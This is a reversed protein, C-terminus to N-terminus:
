TSITITGNALDIVFTPSTAHNQLTGATLTGVNANISSLQAVQLKGATISGALMDNAIISDALFLAANSSSISSINAMAGLTLSGDSAVTANVTGGQNNSMSIGTIASLSASGNSATIATGNFSIGTLVSLDVSGNSGSVVNGNIKVEDVAAISIKRVGTSPTSPTVTTGNVDVDTIATVSATGSSVSAASGNVNVGTLGTLAGTGSTVSVASGNFTLGTLAGIDVAGGSVTRAIGNLSVGTIAGIDAVGSADVIDVGGNVKVSQVPAASSAGTADVYGTSSNDYAVLSEASPAASAGAAANPRWASVNNSYDVTRLWYRYNTGNALGEDLIDQKSGAVGAISFTPVVNNAPIGTTTKRLIQVGAFDLDSPNTWNLKIRKHGATIAPTAVAPATTDGALTRNGSYTRVSRVGIISIAQVSARYVQGVQLGGFVLSNLGSGVKQSFLPLYTSGGVLKELFVEYEGTFADSAKTWGVTVSSLLAGDNNLDAAESTTVNTPASTFRPNPLSTNPAVDIGFTNGFNWDYISNEEEVAELNIGGDGQMAWGSVRFKKNTFIANEGGTGDRDITLTFTDNVAIKFAKLNCPLQISLQQRNREVLLKAIRQARKNDKVFNFAVDAWLKEGDATEYTSDTYPTFDVLNYGNAPDMFTGRMANIRNKQGSETQIVVSGALFSADVVHNRSAPIPAGVQLQHQGQTYPITGVCSALMQDMTSIPSASLDVTGDMTYRKQTAGAATMTVNVDCVNAQEIFRADDIESASSGLGNPNTLFDRICLAPNNSFVTNTTRPDYVKRGEVLASINPIGGLVDQDYEMRVYLYAIGRLRHNTTWESTSGVLDPDATQNSAGLYKKVRVLGAYKNGSAPVFRTNGNSDTGDATLGLATDAFFVDGISNFEGEGLMIIMHLFKNDSNDGSGNSTAVYAVPGSLKTTGYVIRRPHNTSFSMKIQSGMSGEADLMGAMASEAMAKAGYVAAATFATYVAATILKAKLGTAFFGKILFAAVQSPM